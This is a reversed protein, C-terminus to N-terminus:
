AVPTELYPGLLEMAKKRYQDAKSELQVLQGSDPIGIQADDDLVLEAAARLATSRRISEPVGDTGYDYDVTLLDGYDVRPGINRARIFLYSTDHDGETLLYFDEGRGETKNATAVWDTVGGAHDRVELASLSQVDYHPLRVKAYPGATTVPYRVGQESSFLQRDQRHPSSPVDLTIDTVPRASTPVPDQSAGASSDFWHRHTRRQLWDTQGEIADDVIEPDQGLDGGFSAERLVRRVDDRECYGTM